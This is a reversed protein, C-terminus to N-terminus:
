EVADKSNSPLLRCLEPPIRLTVADGSSLDVAPHAVTRLSLGGTEVVYETNRGLFTVRAVRGSLVNPAAGDAPNVFINEPRLVM